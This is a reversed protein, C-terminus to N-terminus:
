GPHTTVGAAARPRPLLLWDDEFAIGGRLDIAATGATALGGSAKDFLGSAEDFLGSSEDFLLRPPEALVPAPRHTVIRIDDGRLLRIASGAATDRAVAVISGPPTTAGSSSPTVAWVTEGLPSAPVSPSSVTPSPVTAPPDTQWAFVSAPPPLAEIPVTPDSALIGRAPAAPLVSTAGAIQALAPAPLGGSVPEAAQSSTVTGMVSPAAKSASLGAPLSVAPLSVAPLSTGGGGVAVTVTPGSPLIPSATGLRGSPFVPVSTAATGSPLLPAGTGAPGSVVSAIAVNQRLTASASAGANDLVTATLTYPAPVSSSFALTNGYVHTAAFSGTGTGAADSVFAASQTGDGWNIVATHTDIAGPDTFTGSVTAAGGIAITAKGLVFSTVVPAQNAVGIAATTAAQIVGNGDKASITATVVGSALGVPNDAYIHTAGFTHATADVAATSGTGDGWDVAVTTLGASAVGRLTAPAISTAGTPLGQADRLITVQGGEPISPTTFKATVVAPVPNVAASTASVSAAGGGNNAVKVNVPWSAAVTAYVHTLDFQPQAATVGSLPTTSGDGWAVTVTFTDLSGAPLITGGVHAPQGLTVANVANLTVTPTVPTVTLTKQTIATSDQDAAAVGITFAGSSAYTHTVVQTAGNNGNFHDVTGDNWDVTWFQVSEPAPHAAASLTLSYPQGEAVTAAGAAAPIEPVANVVVTTAFPTAGGESDTITGRVTHTGHDLGALATLPVTFQKSGNTVATGSVAITASGDYSVAYSYAKGQVVASASTVTLTLTAANGQAVPGAISAAVVPPTNLVQVTTSAKPAEADAYNATVQVAYTGAGNAAGIAAQVTAWPLSLAAATGTEATANVKWAFTAPTTSASGLLLLTDGEHIVYPGGASVTAPDVTVVVAGTVAARATSVGSASKDTLVVSITDPGPGTYIHNAGTASGSLVSTTSDGWNVTWSSLTENGYEVASFGIAYPKGAIAQGTGTVGAITPARAAITITTQAIANDGDTCFAKAYIQYTGAGTIGFETLQAWTLTVVPGVAEGFIGKGSIDWVVTRLIPDSTFQAATANLTVSGGETGSFGAPTAFSLGIEDSSVSQAVGVGPFLSLSPPSNFGRNSFTDFTVTAYTNVNNVAGAVQAFGTVGAINYAIVPSDGPNNGAELPNGTLQGTGPSIVLSESQSSNATNVDGHLDIVALGLVGQGEVYFRDDGDGSSINALQPQALNATGGHLHLTTDTLTSKLLITDAGAGGSLTLVAKGGGAPLTRSAVQIVAADDGAGLDVITNAALAAITIQDAGDGTKIRLTRVTADPAQLLGVQDKGGGTQLTVDGINAFQTILAIPKLTGSALVMNTLGGPDNLGAGSQDSYGATVVLATRVPLFTHATGTASGPTLVIATGALADDRTAALKVHTGDTPIVFYTKGVTLGGIAVFPTGANAGASYAVPDGASLHTVQSFSM